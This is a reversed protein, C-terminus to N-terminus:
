EQGGFMKSMTIGIADNDNMQGLVTGLSNYANDEEQQMRLLEQQFLKHQLVIDYAQDELVMDQDLMDSEQSKMAYDFLGRERSDGFDRSDMERALEQKQRADKAAFIGSFLDGAAIGGATIASNITQERKAINPDVAGGGGDSKNSAVVSASENAVVPNTTQAPKTYAISAGRRQVNSNPSMPSRNQAPAKRYSNLSGSSEFSGKFTEQMASSDGILPKAWSKAFRDTESLKFGSM